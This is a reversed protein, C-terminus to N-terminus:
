GITSRCATSRSNNHIGDDTQRDTQRDTVFHITASLTPTPTSLQVTTNRAPCKRNVEEPVKQDDTAGATCCQSMGAGWDAAHSLGIRGLITSATTRWSLLLVVM